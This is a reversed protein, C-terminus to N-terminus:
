HSLVIVKLIKTTAKGEVTVQFRIYYIGNAVQIGYNDALDWSLAGNGTVPLDIQRIKRFATTFISCEVPATGPVAM